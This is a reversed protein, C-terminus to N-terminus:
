VCIEGLSALSSYSASDPMKIYLLNFYCTVVGKKSIDIVGNSDSLVPISVQGWDYYGM